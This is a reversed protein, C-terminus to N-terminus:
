QELLHFARSDSASVAFGCVLRDVREPGHWERNKSDGLDKEWELSPDAFRRYFGQRDSKRVAFRRVLPM